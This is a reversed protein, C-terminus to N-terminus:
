ISHARDGGCASIPHLNPYMEDETILEAYPGLREKHRRIYFDPLKNTRGEHFARFQSDTRLRERISRLESFEIANLFVTASIFLRKAKRRRAWCWATNVYQGIRSVRLRNIKRLYRASSLKLPTVLYPTYYFSFPM